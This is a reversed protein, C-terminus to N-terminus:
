EEAIIAVGDVVDYHVQGGESDVLNILEQTAPVVVLESTDGDDVWEVANRLVQERTKGTGFIAYGEQIAIFGAAKNQTTM